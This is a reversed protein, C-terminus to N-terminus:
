DEVLGAATELGAKNRRTKANFNQRGEGDM